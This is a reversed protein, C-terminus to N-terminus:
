SSRQGRPINPLSFLLRWQFSLNGRSKTGRLSKTAKLKIFEVGEFIPEPKMVMGKGGGYVFDDVQKHKGQTFDRLNHVNIEVLGKEKARKIISVELPIFVEPFITLIDILM